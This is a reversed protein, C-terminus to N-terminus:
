SPCAAIDPAFGSETGTIRAGDTNTYEDSIYGGSTLQDWVSSSDGLSNTTPAGETQCLISLPERNALTGVVQYSDAPGSHVNLGCTNDARCTHIVKYITVPTLELTPM